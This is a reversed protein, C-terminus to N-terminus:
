VNLIIGFFFVFSSNKFSYLPLCFGIGFIKEFFFCFCFYYFGRVRKWGCLSYRICSYNKCRENNFIVFTWSWFPLCTPLLDFFNSEFTYLLLVSKLFSTQMFKSFSRHACKFSHDSQFIFSQILAAITAIITITIM